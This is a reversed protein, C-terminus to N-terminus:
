PSKAAGAAEAQAVLARAAAQYPGAAEALAAAHGRAHQLYEAREATQEPKLGNVALLYGRATHYRVAQWEPWATEEPKCGLLFNEGQSLALEYLKEEPSTWADLSLYMASVRLRRLPELDAPQEILDSYLGLARKTDGLNRYCQGQKLRAMLGAILLRYDRYISEYRDAAAQYFERGQPDGAPFTGALEEVVGAHYIRAQVVNGKLMEKIQHEPTGPPVFAPLSDLRATLRDSAASFARESERLSKRAQEIGATQQAPENAAVAAAVEGKGQVTLLMGLVMDAQATEPHNPNERVFTDHLQRAETLQQTRTAADPAAQASQVLQAARQLGALPQPAGATDDGPAARLSANGTLAQAAFSLSTILVLSAFKMVTEFAAPTFCVASSRRRM